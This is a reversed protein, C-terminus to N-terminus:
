GLTPRWAWRCAYVNWHRKEVLSDATKMDLGARLATKDSEDLKAIDSIVDLREDPTKKYFGPIATKKSVM